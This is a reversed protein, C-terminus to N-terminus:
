FYLSRPSQYLNCSKSIEKQRFRLNIPIRLIRMHNEGSFILHMQLKKANLVWTFIVKRMWVQFSKKQEQLILILDFTLSANRKLM